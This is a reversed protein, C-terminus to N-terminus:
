EVGSCQIGWSTCIFQKPDSTLLFARDIMLGIVYRKELYVCKEDRRERAIDLRKHWRQYHAIIEDHIDYRVAGAPLSMVTIVDDNHNISAQADLVIRHKLGRLLVSAVGNDEAPAM